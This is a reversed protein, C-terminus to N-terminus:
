RRLIGPSCYTGKLWGDAISRYAAETLHIGDWVLYKEPDGCASSGAMGCRAKNYYNYSGQGGAGCCVRLGYQLGYSEPSRVMDAVQAYFDAYMLRVGGGHKSQLGSVAQRLLENHYSSLNNYSRLCGAEDYDGDKSSGPYLTLYLPFCGIPLVGPVVVDVAGLGILTEVGSAIRDVIEPVYSRVEAMAKGGFLPANYDNGGFEGVVFLSSNFYSQCDAGCISPMLQQFWQIQTGLPGNNWISSGLGHKNFFELDMTTAGIIAMNAGKRVDGAGIAKSPPLLPLGFHDALFDLIVRGDTCRGTPHGFHTNGYPPQGTTLWSPCGGSGTCLNGTDAISDGFSYIANYSQSCGHHRTASLPPLRRVGGGKANRILHTVGPIGSVGIRAQNCREAFLRQWKYAYTPPSSATTVTSMAQPTTKPHSSQGESDASSSDVRM